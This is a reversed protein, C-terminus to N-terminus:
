PKQSRPALSTSRGGTPIVALARGLIVFLWALSLRVDASM